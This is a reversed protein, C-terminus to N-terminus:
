SKKIRPHEDTNTVNTMSYRKNALLDESMRDYM